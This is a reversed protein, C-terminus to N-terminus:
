PRRWACFSFKLFIAPYVTFPKSLSKYVNAGCICYNIKALYMTVDANFSHVTVGLKHLLQWPSAATVCAINLGTTCNLYM